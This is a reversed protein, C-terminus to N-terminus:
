TEKSKNVIKVLDNHYQNNSDLQGDKYSYNNPKFPGGNPTIFITNIKQKIEVERIGVLILYDLLSIKNAQANKSNKKIWKIKDLKVEEVDYGMRFLFSDEECDVFGEDSLLKYQRRIVEIDEELTFRYNKLDHLGTFKNKFTDPPEHKIIEEIYNEYGKVYQQILSISEQQIYSYIKNSQLIWVPENLFYWDFFEFEANNSNFFPEYKKQDFYKQKVQNLYTEFIKDTAMKGLNSILFAIFGMCAPNKRLQVAEPEKLSMADFTTEIFHYTVKIDNYIFFGVLNNKWIYRIKKRQIHAIEEPIQM